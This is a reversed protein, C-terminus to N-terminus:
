STKRFRKIFYIKFRDEKRTAAMRTWAKEQRCIQKGRGRSYNWRWLFWFSKKFNLYWAMKSILHGRGM